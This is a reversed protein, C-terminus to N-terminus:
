DIPQTNPAESLPIKSFEISPHDMKPGVFFFFHIKWQGSAQASTTAYSIYRKENAGGACVECTFVKNHHRNKVCLFPHAVGTFKIRIKKLFFRGFFLKPCPGNPVSCLFLPAFEGFAGTIGALNKQSAILQTGVNSHNDPNM